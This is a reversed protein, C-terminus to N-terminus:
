RCKQSDDDDSASLDSTTRALRASRGKRARSVPPDPVVAKTKAPQQKKKGHIMEHIDVPDHGFVNKKRAEEEEQDTRKEEKHGKLYDEM